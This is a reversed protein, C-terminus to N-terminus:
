RRSALAVDSPPLGSGSPRPEPSPVRFASGHVLGIEFDRVCAPCWAIGETVTWEDSPDAHRASLGCGRCRQGSVPALGDPDTCLEGATVYVM